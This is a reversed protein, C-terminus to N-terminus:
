PLRSSTLRSMPNALYSTPSFSRAYPRSRVASRLFSAFTWAASLAHSSPWPRPSRYAIRGRRRPDDAEGRRAGRVSVRDAHRRAQARAEAVPAARAPDSRHRAAPEVLLARRVEPIQLWGGNGVILELLTRPLAGMRAIRAVEPGTIRPNRLLAEWVNKGYMRELMIRESVEGEARGQDAARADPRAPARQRQARDQARADTTPRAARRDRRGDARSRRRRDREGSRRADVDLRPWPSPAARTPRVDIDLEVAAMAAIQRKMEADCGVLQLGSGRTGDVWVCEARSSSSAVATACCSCRMGRRDRASGPCSCAAPSWIVRSSSISGRARAGGTAVRSWQIALPGTLDGNASGADPHGVARRSRKSSRAALGHRVTPCRASYPGCRPPVRRRVGRLCKIRSTSGCRRRTPQGHWGASSCGSSRTRRAGQRGERSAADGRHQLAAAGQRRRGAHEQRARSVERDCGESGDTASMTPPDDPLKELAKRANRRPKRASAALRARAAAGLQRKRTDRRTRTAARPPCAGSGTASTPRTRRDVEADHTDPETTTRPSRRTRQSGRTSRRRDRDASGRDDVRQGGDVAAGQGRAERQGRGRHRARRRETGDGYDVAFRTGVIRSRPTAPACSSSPRDGRKHEVELEVKGRSMTSSCAATPHADVTFATAPRERDARRRHRARGSAM